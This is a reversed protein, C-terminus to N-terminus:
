WMKLRSREYFSDTFDMSKLEGGNLAFFTRVEGIDENISFCEFRRHHFCRKLFYEQAPLKTPFVNKWGYYPPDLYFFPKWRELCAILDEYYRKDELIEQFWNQTL